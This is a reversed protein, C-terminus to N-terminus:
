NGFFTCLKELKPVCISRSVIELKRLQKLKQLNRFRCKPINTAELWFDQLNVCNDCIVELCYIHNIYLKVTILQPASREFFAEFDNFPCKEQKYFSMERVHKFHDVSLHGPGTIQIAELQPMLRGIMSIDTDKYRIVHESEKSVLCGMSLKKLTDLRTVTELLEIPLVEAILFSLNVADELMCRLGKIHETHNCWYCYKADVRLCTLNVPNYDLCNAFTIQKDFELHRLQPCSKNLKAGFHEPIALFWHLCKLNRCKRLLKLISAHNVVSNVVIVDTSRIQHEEHGCTWPNLDYSSSSIVLALQQAWILNIVYSFRHSLRGFLVRERVPLYKAIAILCDDAIDSFEVM